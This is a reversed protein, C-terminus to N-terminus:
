FVFRATIQVARPTQRSRGQGYLPSFTQTGGQEILYFADHNTVNFIELAPEVRYKGLHFDRGARLNLIHVDPLTFQGENRTPYAFRITTALPNSVTRGNSLTVTAPGFRPDAAALRTFIPGSWLGSQFTYNVAFVTQWPGRYITGLRITDDVAQAQQGSVVPSSSLSNQTEFTSTVSGLGRGNPFADPQIFSAPDNPQWTGALHRWQHTYSGIIQSRATQKTALLALSTYVPWNWDNNTIRLIDNFSENQYGKFVSGEYLGNIEVVATRDRFQRRVVSADVSVQGPLQERYGVIWENTHPQHRADDLVRDTSQASVGPTIFTTEFIGDLDTDYLDRYGSANTGASQTTQALVDAVRTWSARAARRGDRTLLYNVGFRPGIETSDQTEVNFATDKRGIVDVRVGASVTLHPLPRLVDQVYSSYDNVDAVLAAAPVRTERRRLPSRNM